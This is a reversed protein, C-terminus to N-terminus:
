NEKTADYLVEFGNQSIEAWTYRFETQTYWGAYSRFVVISPATKVLSGVAPEARKIRETRHSLGPCFLDIGDRTKLFGFRDSKAVVGQVTTGDAYTYKLTDGINYM